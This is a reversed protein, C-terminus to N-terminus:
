CLVNTCSCARVDGLRTPIKPVATGGVGDWVMDSADSSVSPVAWLHVMMRSDVWFSHAILFATSPVVLCKSFQCEAVCCPHRAFARKVAKVPDALAGFTLPPTKCADYTTQMEGRLLFLISGRSLSHEM